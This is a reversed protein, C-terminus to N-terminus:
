VTKADSIKYICIWAIFFVFFISTLPKRSLDKDLDDVVLM